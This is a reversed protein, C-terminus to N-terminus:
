RTSQETTVRELVRASVRDVFARFDPLVQYRVRVDGTLKSIYTLRTRLAMSLRRSVGSVVRCDSFLSLPSYLRLVVCVAVDRYDHEGALGDLRIIRCISPILAPDTLLPSSLAELAHRSEENRRKLERYETLSMM